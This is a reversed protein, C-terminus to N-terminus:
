SDDASAAVFAAELDAWRLHEANTESDADSLAEFVRQVFADKGENDDHERNWHSEAEDTVYDCFETWELESYATEDAIPYDALKAQWEMAALFAPHVNSETYGLSPDTLAPVLIGEVWGVAWHSAGDVEILDPFRERLDELIVQFNSRDLVDSDRHQGIGTQAMNDEVLDDLRGFYYAPATQAERLSTILDTM